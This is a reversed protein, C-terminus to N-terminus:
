GGADIVAATLDCVFRIKRTHEPVQCRCLIEGLGAKDDDTAEGVRRRGGDGGKEM